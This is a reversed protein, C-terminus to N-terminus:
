LLVTLLLFPAVLESLLLQLFTLRLLLSLLLKLAAALLLLAFCLRLLM